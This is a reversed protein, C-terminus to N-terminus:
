HGAQPKGSIVLAAAYAMMAVATLLAMALSAGDSGSGSFASGAGFAGLIAVLGIVSTVTLPAVKAQLARVVLMVAAIILLIGMVVHVALLPSSFMGIPKGSAPATGYIAYATGLIFQIILMTLAGLSAMRIRNIQPAPVTLASPASKTAM